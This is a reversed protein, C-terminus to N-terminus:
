WLGAYIGINLSHILDGDGEGRFSYGIQGQFYPLFQNFLARAGVSFGSYNGHSWDIDFGYVLDLIRLSMPLELQITNLYVDVEAGDLLPTDYVFTESKFRLYMRTLGMFDIVTFIGGSMKPANFNLGISYALIYATTGDDFSNNYYQFAFEVPALTVDGGPVNLWHSFGHVSVKASTLSGAASIYGWTQNLGHRLGIRGGRFLEIDLSQNQEGYPINEYPNPPPILPLAMFYSGELALWPATLGQITKTTNFVRSNITKTELGRFVGTSVTDTNGFLIKLKKFDFGLNGAIGHFEKDQYLWPSRDLSLHGFFLGQIKVTYLLDNLLTTNRMGTEGTNFAAYVSPIFLAYFPTTQPEKEAGFPKAEDSFHKIEDPPVFQGDERYITYIKNLPGSWAEELVTYNIEEIYPSNPDRIYVVEKETNYGLAVIYHGASIGYDLYSLHVANVEMMVPRDQEVSDIVADITRDVIEFHYGSYKSNIIDEFHQSTTPNYGTMGFLQPKTLDSGWYGMIMLFSNQGCSYAKTQKSFPITIVKEEACIGAAIFIGLVIVVFIIFFTRKV